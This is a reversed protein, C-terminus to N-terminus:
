EKGDQKPGYIDKIEVFKELIPGLLALGPQLESEPDETEVTTSVFALWKGKPAVNHRLCM